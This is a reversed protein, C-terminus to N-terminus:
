TINITHVGSGPIAFTISSPGHDLNAETLAARLTCTNSTSRCIGDGPSRDAADGTTRVTYTGGAAGAPPAALVLGICLLGFLVPVAMVRTQTRRLCDPVNM